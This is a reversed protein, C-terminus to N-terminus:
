PPTGPGGEGAVGAPAAEARRAELKEYLPLRARGKWKEPLAYTPNPSEVCV